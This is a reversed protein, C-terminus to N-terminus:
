KMKGANAVVSSALYNEIKSGNRAMEYYAAKLLQDKRQLLTERISQQVRPDNLERQGAPERSIVKLIRFGEPTQIVQSVAGPQLALVLKRLDPSAKDLASEALFGMDGGSAATNPDESYNQAVLTFDEGRKLRAEIDAIKSKAEAVNQAKNNRLNRVNTDPYPTVLIQAMHIQPEALNFSPKNANYFNAVDSDTITIHSTIEKNVLKDVTLQRRIQSKLDDITMKRDALQKDFEEKTYPAKMKNLETDVDADVAALGLKEARQLMIENTILSGLVELKQMMVQDESSGEVPQPYQSQYIKDLETNTISHGNVAAAVGAPASKKCSALTLVAAAAVILTLYTKM